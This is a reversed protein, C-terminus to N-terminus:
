TRLREACNQNLHGDNMYKAISRLWYWHKSRIKNIKFPAPLEKKPSHEEYCRKHAELVAPSSACSAGFRGDWGEGVRWSM